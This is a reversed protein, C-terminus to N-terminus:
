ELADDIPAAALRWGDVISGAGLDRLCTPCLPGTVTAASPGTVAHVRTEGESHLPEGSCFLCHLLGILKGCSECTSTTWGSEFLRRGGQVTHGDPGCPFSALGELVGPM